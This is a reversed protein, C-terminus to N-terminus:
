KLAPRFLTRRQLQLASEGGGTDSAGLRLLEKFPLPEEYYMGFRWEEPHDPVRELRYGYHDFGGGFALTVEGTEDVRVENPHIDGIVKPLSDLEPRSLEPHEQAARSLELCAM